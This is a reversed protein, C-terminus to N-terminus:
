EMIVIKRKQPSSTSKSHSHYTGERFNLLKSNERAFKRRAARNMTTTIQVPAHTSGHCRHGDHVASSTARGAVLALQLAESAFFSIAFNLLSAEADFVIYTVLWLTLAKLM